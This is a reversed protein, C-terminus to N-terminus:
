PPVATKEGHVGVAEGMMWLGRQDENYRSAKRSTSDPMLMIDALSVLSAFSAPKRL